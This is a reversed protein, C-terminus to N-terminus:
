AWGEGHSLRNIGLTSRRLYKYASRLVRPGITPRWPTKLGYGKKGLHGPWLWVTVCRTIQSSDSLSRAQPVLVLSIMTRRVDGTGEGRIIEIMDAARYGGGGQVESVDESSISKVPAGDHCLESGLGWQMWKAVTLNSECHAM